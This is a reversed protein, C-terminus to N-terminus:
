KECVKELQTIRAQDQEHQKHLRSNDTWLYIIQKQAEQYKQNLRANEEFVSKIGNVLTDRNGAENSFSQKLREQFELESALADIKANRKEIEVLMDKFQSSNSDIKHTTSKIDLSDSHIQDITEDASKLQLFVDLLFTAVAILGISLTAWEFIDM